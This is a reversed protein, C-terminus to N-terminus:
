RWRRSSRARAASVARRAPAIQSATPPHRGENAAHEHQEDDDDQRDDGDDHQELVVRGARREHGAGRDVVVRQGVGLAALVREGGGGRAAVGVDDVGLRRAPRPGARLADRLVPREDLRGRLGGVDLGVRQLPQDQELAGAARVGGGVGLELARDPERLDERLGAAVQQLHLDVRRARPPDPARQPPGLALAVGGQGLAQALAPPADVLAEIRGLREGRRGAVQEDCALLEAAGVEGHLAVV